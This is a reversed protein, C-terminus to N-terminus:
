GDDRASPKDKSTAAPTTSSPQDNAQENKAAPQAAAPPAIAAQLAALRQQQQTDLSSGFKAKLAALIASAHPEAKAHDLAVLWANADAPIQRAEDIRNLWLLFVVRLEDIAQILADPKPTAPPDARPPSTDSPTQETSSVSSDSEGPAGKPDTSAESQAGTTDSKPDAAASTAQPKPTTATSSTTPTTAPIPIMSLINLGEGPKGLHEYAHALMLLGRSLADRESADDLRQQATLPSLLLVQETPDDTGQALAVLDPTSLGAAYSSLAEKRRQPNPAALTALAHYSARDHRHTLVAKVVADYLTTDKAAHALLTDVQDARLALAQAAMTRITQEPADLLRVLRSLDEANGLTALIRAAPPNLQDDPISRVGALLAEHDKSDPLLDHQLLEWALGAARPRVRLPGALWRLVPERGPAAPWRAAALLLAQAANPDSESSLAVYVATQADDPALRQLLIAASARVSPSPSKLLSVAANAVSPQLTRGESIERNILEFGLSQLVDIDSGLLDALLQSREEVPTLLHVKRWADTLAQQDRSLRTNLQDIQMLQADLLANTWQEPTYELVKAFWQQWADVTRPLTTLGTLRELSEYAQTVITPDPDNLVSMIAAAAQRNRYTSLVGLAAKRVPVPIAQDSVMNLLADLWIAPPHIPANRQNTAELLALLGPSPPQQHSQQTLIDAVSQAMLPDSLAQEIVKSAIAARQKPTTSADQLAALQQERLTTTAPQKSSSTSTENASSAAPNPTASPEAHTSPANHDADPPNHEQAMSLTPWLLLGVLLACLVGQQCM